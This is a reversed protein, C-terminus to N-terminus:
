MQRSQAHKAATCSDSVFGRTLGLEAVTAFAIFTPHQTMEAIKCFAGHRARLDIGLRSM